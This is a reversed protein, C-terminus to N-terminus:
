TNGRGDPISHQKAQAQAPFWLQQSNRLAAAMANGSSQEVAGELENELEECGEVWGSSQPQPTDQTTKHWGLM